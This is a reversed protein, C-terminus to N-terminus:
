TDDRAFSEELSHHIYDVLETLSVVMWDDCSTFGYLDLMRNFWSLDRDAYTAITNVVGTLDYRANFWVYGGRWSDQNPHLVWFRGDNDARCPMGLRVICLNPEPLTYPDDDGTSVVQEMAQQLTM